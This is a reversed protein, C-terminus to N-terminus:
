EGRAKSLAYKARSCGSCGESFEHNRLIAHELADYLEPAAAILHANAECERRDSIDTTYAYGVADGFHKGAWIILSGVESEKLKWPGKTWKKESM